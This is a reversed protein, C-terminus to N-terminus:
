GGEGKRTKLATKTVTRRPRKNIAGKTSSSDFATKVPAGHRACLDVKKAGKGDPAIVWTSVPGDCGQNEMDCVLVMRQAM